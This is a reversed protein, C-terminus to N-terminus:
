IIFDFKNFRKKRKKENENLEKIVNNDNIDNNIFNNHNIHTNLNYDIKNYNRNQNKNILDKQLEQYLTGINNKNNEENITFNNEIENYKIKKNNKPTDLIMEESNKDTISVDLLKSSLDFIPARTTNTRKLKGKKTINGKNENNNNNENTNNNHINTNNINNNEIKNEENNKNEPLINNENNKNSSMKKEPRQDFTIKRHYDYIEKENKTNNDFKLNKLNDIDFKLDKNYLKLKEIENKLLEIDNKLNKNEEIILKYDENEIQLKPFNKKSLKKSLEDLLLLQDNDNTAISKHRKLKKLNDILNNQFKKNGSDLIKNNENNNLNLTNENKLNDEKKSKNDDIKSKKSNLTLNFLFNNKQIDDKNDNKISKNDNLYSKTENNDSTYIIKTPTDDNENKNLQLKIRKTLRKMKNRSKNETSINSQNFLSYHSKPSLSNIESKKNTTTNNNYSSNKKSLNVNKKYNQYLNENQITFFNNKTKKNRKNEILPLEISNESVNNNLLSNNHLEQFSISKTKKDKINSLLSYILDIQNISQNYNDLQKINSSCKKIKQFLKILENLFEIIKDEFINQTEMKKIDKIYNEFQKNIDNLEEKNINIKENFLEKLKNYNEINYYNELKLCIEPIDIEFDKFLNNLINFKEKFLTKFEILKNNVKIFDTSFNEFKLKISKFSNDKLNNYNINKKDKKEKDLKVYISIKKIEDNEILENLETNDNYSTINENNYFIEFSNPKLIFIKICLEKIYGITISSSIDFGRKIEGYILNLEM